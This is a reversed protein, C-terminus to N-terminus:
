LCSPVSALLGYPCWLCLQHGLWPVSWDRWYGTSHQSLQNSRLQQKGKRSIARPPRLDRRKRSPNIRGNETQTPFRRPHIKSIAHRWTEQPFSIFSEHTIDHSSLFTTTNSLQTTKHKVGLQNKISEKIIRPQRKWYPMSIGWQDPKSM